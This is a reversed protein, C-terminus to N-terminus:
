SSHMGICESFREEIVGQGLKLHQTKVDILRKATFSLVLDSQDCAHASLKDTACPARPLATCQWYIDERDAELNYDDDEEIYV